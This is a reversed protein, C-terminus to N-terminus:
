NGVGVLEKENREVISYAGTQTVLARLQRPTYSQGPSVPMADIVMTEDLRHRGPLALEEETWAPWQQTQDNRSDWDYRPEYSEMVPEAAERIRERWSQYLQRQQKPASAHYVENTLTWEDSNEGNWGTRIRNAEFEAAAERKDERRNYWWDRIQGGIMTVVTGLGYVLVLAAGLLAKSQQLQGLTENVWDFSVRM